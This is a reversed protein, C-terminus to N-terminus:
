ADGPDSPQAPPKYILLNNVIFPIHAYRYSRAHQFGRFALWAEDSMYILTGAYTPKINRNRLQWSLRATHPEVFTNISPIIVMYSKSVRDIERAIRALKEIPRIHELVGISFTIDFYSDPFPIAAADGVVMRFNHQRLGDDALDLGTIELDERGKLFQVLDKGRSCGVDLIHKQRHHSELLCGDLLRDITRLRRLSLRRPIGM